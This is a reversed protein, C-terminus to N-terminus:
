CNDCCWYYHQGSAQAFQAALYQAYGASFGCGSVSWDANHTCCTGGSGGAVIKKMEIKSLQKVNAISLKKM